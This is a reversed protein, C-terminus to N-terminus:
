QGSSIFNNPINHYSTMVMCTAMSYSQVQTHSDSNDIGSLKIEM